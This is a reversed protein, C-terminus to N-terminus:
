WQWSSREEPGERREEHRMYCVRRGGGSMCTASCPRSQDEVRPFVVNMAKALLSLEGMVVDSSRTRLMSQVMPEWSASAVDVGLGCNNKLSPQPDFAEYQDPAFLLIGHFLVM